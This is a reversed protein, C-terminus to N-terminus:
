AAAAEARLAPRSEHTVRVVRPERRAGLRPPLQAATVAPAIWHSQLHRVGMTYLVGLEAPTAIDQVIMTFGQRRALRAIGEAILQRPMSQDINRTLAADLKVYRLGFRALLRMAAPGASFGDLAVEIGRLVCAEVLGAAEEPDAGADIRVEVLLQEVPVRHALAARFLAAIQRNPDVGCPRMAIALMPEAGAIGARAAAAIAAEYRLREREFADAADPEVVRAQFAIPAGSDADIVPQFVTRLPKAAFTAAADTM